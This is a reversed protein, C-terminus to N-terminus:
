TSVGIMSVGVTALGTSEKETDGERGSPNTNFPNLPTILPLTLSFTVTATLTVADFPPPKTVAGSVITIVAALSHITIFCNFRSFFRDFLVTTSLTVTSVSVSQAEISHKTVNLVVM